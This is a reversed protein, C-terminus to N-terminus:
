GLSARLTTGAASATGVVCYVYMPAASFLCIIALADGAWVDVWRRILASPLHDQIIPAAKDRLSRGGKSSSLRLQKKAAAAADEDM